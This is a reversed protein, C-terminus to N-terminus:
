ARPPCACVTDFHRWKQGSRIEMIGGITLARMRMNHLGAGVTEHPNVSFGVGDDEVALVITGAQEHLNVSINRAKGHKVANQVAEQTIRYLHKAVDGDSIFLVSSAQFRCRAIGSAEIEKALGKLSSVLGEAKLTVPNLGKALDRAQQISRNLMQEVEKAEAAASSVNQDSLFKELVGTRYKAGVLIQCLNDHLDRGIREHEMEIRRLVEREVREQQALLEGELRKRETIDTSVGTLRIVMGSADRVQFGRDLVWRVSGDSRVIRYEVGNASEGAILSALIDDARRQHEPLIAEVWQHPNAYLSEATRGWIREYGPSVYHIKKLDPSAIWFVDAISNALERFREENERVFIEALKRETIDTIAGVMRVPRGDPDRQAAGRSFVWRYSGDKHRLRFELAYREGKELHGRTAAEVAVLDDPHINDMFASRQNPLEADRYGIIEKWRPSFYDEDTLINWDWLGDNTAQEALVYRQQSQRLAAEAQKRETADRMAAVRLKRDGIRMIKARVEIDFCSGDKRRTQHEYTEELDNRIAQAVTMRSDPAVFNFIDEGVMEDRECGFMKLLQDNVDLIRGNESICIGEFTANSLQQFREESQRLAQEAMRRGTIDEKIAVFHTIKGAAATIASISAAEWFLEGNKKRNHFEGRWELGQTITQWLRQYEGAPMQGSKLLRPNKGLVEDPTYGTLETFKSNVYEIAGKVDTIVISVPSQEVARSLKLLQEEAKKRASADAIVTLAFSLDESVQNLLGLEIKDFFGARPAYFQISGTVKQEIRIPFVALYHLGFKQARARWPLTSPDLDIDNILVLRGERIATGTPGRGEPEDSTVLIRIGDLYGTVGAQAMPQVTGDPAVMGIWALKFGGIEVAVRCVEDLLKKPDPIHVIAHDVGALIAQARNLQAIREDLHDRETIDVLSFRCHEEHNTADRVAEVRVSLRGNQANVLEFRASQRATSNFVDRCLLRLTGQAEAAIFRSFKQGMLRAREMGLLEGAKLNAELIEGDRNLTLHAVPTFDLLDAYRIRATEVELQMQRLDDFEPTHKMSAMVM